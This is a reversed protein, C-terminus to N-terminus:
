HSAKLNRRRGGGEGVGWSSGGVIRGIDIQKKKM